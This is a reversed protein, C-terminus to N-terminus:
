DTAIADLIAMRAARRSPLVSALTGLAAALITIVVLSQIPLSFKELGATGLATVMAYALGVGVTLGVGTGLVSILVAEWRITSRLQGRHMGVARLLGLEHTRENISLALTNVIGVLAIIVSLLLLVYLFIVLQTLQKAISGVFGDRDLVELSPVSKIAQEIKPAVEAYKAGPALKGFVQADLQQPSAGNLATRTITMDGLLQPDDSIGAVQLALTSGGAVTMTIKSGVKLHHKSVIGEDVIVGGDSLTSVDGQVMKATLIEVFGKPEVGTVFKTAKGGDPYVVQARGFGVGAALAVGPVKAVQDTVTSPFGSPPGFSSGSSQVVFDGNFGRSVQSAISENISSAVVTIFGILAVAIVLASATASTRKPSRAANETALRGTVGKIRALASGLLRISPGALIPGIVIAGVVILLAGFGVTPISDSSNATWAKSLNLAGFLLVVVGIVIRARSAGSRDIAVNRIAALPPVRTARIAPVLAAILTVGLGLVFATIVTSLAVTLKNAPLDAGGAEFAKTVLKSLGIGAFLGLLAAFAGVFLAELLVSGLVQRRRAGLARLLALERTRQAVLISFTNSIVFIGVLLAVGAFVTLITKFFSFGKQVDTSQQKAAAVGTLVESDKPVIPKIRAVLATQSVGKDASALVQQIKGHTGALRESEPLTFSVTVAGAASKATGFLYTGVLKYTARGFQTVVEVDDGVRLKGEEAAAVNLGMENGAAPGRGKTLHYASLSEDTIWNQFLTPPGQSAGIAKGNTGLVRNTSGFGLLQVFPTVRDVGDVARVKDVLSPDLLARQDGFFADKLTVKGQVQVDIAANATSFLDDFTRGITNTLVLTGSMFAVGLVIAVVTSILRRKHEWLSRRTLRLM